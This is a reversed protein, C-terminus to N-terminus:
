VLLQHLLFSLVQAIFVGYVTLGGVLYTIDVLVDGSKGRLM